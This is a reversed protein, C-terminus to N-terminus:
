QFKGITNREGYLCQLKMLGETYIPVDERFLFRM